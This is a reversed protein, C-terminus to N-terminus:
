ARPRRGPLAPREVASPVRVPGADEVRAMGYQHVFAGRSKCTGVQVEIGAARMAEILAAIEASSECEFRFGIM